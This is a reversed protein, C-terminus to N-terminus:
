VAGCDPGHFGVVAPVVLPRLANKRALRCRRPLPDLLPALVVEVVPVPDVLLHEQVHLLSLM